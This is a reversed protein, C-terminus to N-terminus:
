DTPPYDAIFYTLSRIREGKIEFGDVVHMRAGSALHIHAEALVRNGDAVITLIEPRPSADRQSRSYFENIADRGSVRAGLGILEGDDTFLDAVPEGAQLRRFYELAVTMPLKM